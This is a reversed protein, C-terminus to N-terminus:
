PAPAGPAGAAGSPGTAGPAGVSGQQGQPGATGPPGSVGWRLKRDHKACHKAIYLNGGTHQVCAAITGSSSSQAAYAGGAFAFVLATLAVGMAPSVKVRRHM